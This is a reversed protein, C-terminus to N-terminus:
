ITKTQKETLEFETKKRHDEFEILMNNLEKYFKIPMKKNETNKTETPQLKESYWDIAQIYNQSIKDEYVKSQKELQKQLMELKVRTERMLTVKKYNSLLLPIANAMFNFCKYLLNCRRQLIDAFKVTINTNKNIAEVLARKAVIIKGYYEPSIAPTIGKPNGTEIADQYTKKSNELEEKLKLITYNERNEASLSKAYEPEPHLIQMGNIYCDIELQKLDTSFDETPAALTQFQKQLYKLPEQNSPPPINADKYKIYEGYIKLPTSFASIQSDTTLGIKKLENIFEEIKRQTDFTKQDKNDYFLQLYKTLLALNDKQTADTTDEHGAQQIINDLEASISKYNAILLDHEARKREYAQIIESVVELREKTYILNIANKNVKMRKEAEEIAEKREKELQNFKDSLVDHLKPDDPKTINKDRIAKFFIGYKKELKQMKELANADPTKANSESYMVFQKWKKIIQLIDKEKHYKQYKPDEKEPTWDERKGLKELAARHGEELLKGKMEDSMKFNLAKEGLDDPMIIIDRHRRLVEINALAAKILGKAFDIAGVKLPKDKQESSKGQLYAITEKSEMSVAIIGGKGKPTARLHYVDDESEFDIAPKIPLNDKLGGDVFIEGNYPVAKFAAPFSMTIRVALWIPMNPTDKWNFLKLEPQLPALKSRTLMIDKFRPDYIPSNPNAADHLEKFTINPNGTHSAILLKAFDAFTDGKYLGHDESNLIRAISEIADAPISTLDTINFFDIKKFGLAESWFPTDKDMFDTFNIEAMQKKIEASSMGIGAMMSVIGGASSGWVERVDLWAGNRELEEISGLHELGKTGGGRFVMKRIRQQESSEITLM